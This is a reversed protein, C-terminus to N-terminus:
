GPNLRGSLAVSVKGDLIMKEDLNLNATIEGDNPEQAVEEMDIGKGAVSSSKRERFTLRQDYQDNALPSLYVPDAGDVSVKV